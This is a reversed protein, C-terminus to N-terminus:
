WRWQWRISGAAGGGTKGQSTEHHRNL